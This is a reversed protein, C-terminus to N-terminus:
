ALHFSQKCASVQLKYLSEILSDSSNATLKAIVYAGKLVYSGGRSDYILQDYM